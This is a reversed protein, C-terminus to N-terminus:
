GRDFRRRGGGRRVLVLKWVQVGEWDEKEWGVGGEGMLKELRGEDVRSCKFGWEEKASHLFGAILAPDRVELALYIPPPARTPTCLAHLARLLPQTLSPDYISDSTTILDFPPTLRPTPPEAEASSSRPTISWQSFNWREPEAFWDLTRAELVPQELETSPPPRGEVNERLIGEAIVEMDTAVVDYGQANLSLALM